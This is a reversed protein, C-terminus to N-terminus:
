DFVLKQIVEMKEVKPSEKLNSKPQAGTKPTISLTWASAAVFTLSLDPSWGGNPPNDVLTSCLALM